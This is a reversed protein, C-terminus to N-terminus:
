IEKFPLGFDADNAKKYEACFAAYVVLAEETRKQRRMARIVTRLANEDTPDIVAIMEGIECVAEYDKARFRADLEEQLLPLVINEAKEKFDDFIEDGISKLFKGGSIIGLIRDKDLEKERLASNLEFWDCSCPPALELYYRGDRYAVSAGELRSLSRRLNNLAVGRSNKVKEEEKDPWLISSLRRTSIGNDGRKILLCLILIQQATFLTTIDNGEHDLVTFDGFLSISDPKQPHRFMKRSGTGGHNRGFEEAHRRKRKRVTLVSATLLSAAALVCLVVAWWSMRGGSEGDLPAEEATLPPYALSYIKLTSKIDDEFEQVTAFFCGLERDLWLNANTRMKDSIIPISDGLIERSGDAISFRYLYLESKGVYEPYCLTYFWDGDTCLNRVPVKDAGEWDLRWLLTCNGTRPEVRHLDYFYRRGVVQEGCENGMGGYVYIYKDDCGTSTFYRPYIVDGGHEKWVENWTGSKEDLEYFSGNYLMNGFGGLITYRGSVPNFFCGHHHLPMGLRQTGLTRWDGTDLDFEAVSPSDQPVEDNYIEYCVVRKGDPTVFNNGLKMEVPCPSRFRFSYSRDDMLDLVTMGDRTFYLFEKRVSNYAAGAIDSYSFSGIEKWRLAENILWEPNQVSGRLRHRSDPVSCGTRQNLPFLFEKGSGSVRLNRIAFAPVDIIHDSRGFELGARLRDPLGESHTSFSKGAIELRVSDKLLDFGLAVRHWHLPKLRDHPLSAKILSHRGEENLRVVISDGRSDYSLNWIRRSDGRDKLRFFYGFEATPRTYLGFEMRFEGDFVEPRDGFVNYSTRQDIRAEMGHFGLGQASCEPSHCPILLAAAAICAALFPSKVKM